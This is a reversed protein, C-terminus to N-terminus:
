DSATPTSIPVCVETVWSAPDPSTAPGVLYINFMAGSVTLSRDTIWSMIADNVVSIQEYPGTFTASVVHQEGVHRFLESKGPETRVQAWVEVDVDQERYDEDHFTAWFAVIDGPAVGVAAAAPMLRQWLRGEDSYSPIVDRLAVVTMPPRTTMTVTPTMTPEKLDSILHDLGSLRSSVHQLDQHLQHRQQELARLLADSDGVLRLLRGIEDVSCGVDRFTRIWRASGLQSQSYLRYGSSSDVRAPPLLGREDYHRLMRISLRSLRSFEGIRLDQEPMSRV